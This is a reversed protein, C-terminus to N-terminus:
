VRATPQAGRSLFQQLSPVLGLQEIMSYVDWAFYVDVLKGNDFRNMSIGRVIGRRNTPPIGMLTGKHTGTASWRLYVKDGIAGIDDITLEFDPFATRFSRVHNREADLGEIDGVLPDHVKIKSSVLEDFVAMNGKNWVQDVFRRVLAVNDIAM